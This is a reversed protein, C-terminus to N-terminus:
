GYVDSVYRVERQEEFWADADKDDQEPHHEKWIKKCVEATSRAVKSASGCVFIRAGDRFLKAAEEREAWIRDSTYRYKEVGDPGRKSFCPRVSVVDDHDWQELESRYIYDKEYDRCGFYLLAPGLKRRDAKAMEAREQIFGRMPAIGSGACIMIIPVSSDAPLRFAGATPKVLARVHFGPKSDALHTSAVGHFTQKPNSKSPSEVVDYSISAIITGNDQMSALPSSSISYQRPSLAKLMDLYESFSLKCSPYAELIDIISFRKPLVESDYKDDTALVEIAAKEHDSATSAIHLLQKKTVPTLLEVRSLLLDVVTM